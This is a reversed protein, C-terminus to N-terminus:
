RWLRRQLEADLGFPGSRADAHELRAGAGIWGLAARLAKHTYTRDAYDVEWFPMGDREALHMKMNSPIAARFVIVDRFERELGEMTALEKKSAPEKPDTQNAILRIRTQLGREHIEEIVAVAGDLSMRSSCPVVFIDQPQPHVIAPIREFVDVTPPTDVILLADRDDAIQLALPANQNVVALTGHGDPTQVDVAENGEWQFRTLWRTANDQTDLDLLVVPQMCESLQWALHVSLTTKGSGGKHNHVIINQTEPDILDSYIM